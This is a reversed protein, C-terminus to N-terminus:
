LGPCFLTKRDVGRGRYGLLKNVAKNVSVIVGGRDVILIGEKMTDVVTKWYRNIEPQLM